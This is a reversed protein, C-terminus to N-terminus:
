DRKRYPDPSSPVLAAYPMLVLVICKGSYVTPITLQQMAQVSAISIINNM